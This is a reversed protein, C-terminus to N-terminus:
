DAPQTSEDSLLTLPEVLLIAGESGSIRVREGAGVDPGRAIWESDGLRIRGSGHEIAQVVVATEGVLRAGRRNMLPDSSEIPRDRLFRRASFAIILSLFVFDIVQMPVSLDLTYTLVGTIIAALALWILYVGPVLMELGALFLGLTLWVWHADLNQYWDM